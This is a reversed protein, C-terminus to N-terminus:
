AIWQAMSRQHQQQIEEKQPWVDEVEAKVAFLMRFLHDAKLCYICEELAFYATVGLGARRAAETLTLKKAERIQKLRKAVLRNIEQM